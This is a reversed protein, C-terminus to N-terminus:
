DVNNINEVVSMRRLKSLPLSTSIISGVICVALSILIECWPTIWVINASVNNEIFKYIIYSTGLGAFTGTLWGAFGYILGESRIMIGLETGTMGTARLMGYEKQRVIINSSIINVITLMSIVAICALIGYIVTDVQNQLKKMEIEYPNNVLDPSVTYGHKGGAINELQNKVYERDANEDVTIYIGYCKSNEIFESLKDSHMVVMFGESASVHIAFPLKEFFGGVLATIKKDKLKIDVRDGTKLSTYPINKSSINMDYKPLIVIFENKMLETDISGECIYEKMIELEKDGYGLFISLFPKKGGYEEICVDPPFRIYRYRENVKQPEVLVNLIFDMRYRFDDESFGKAWEGRWTSPAFVESVGEISELSEIFGKDPPKVAKDLRERSPSDMYNIYIRFDSSYVDRRDIARLRDTKVVFSYTILLFVSLSLTIVTLIFSKKRRWINRYSLIVPFLLPNKGKLFLSSAPAKLKSEKVKLGAGNTIAGVPSLRTAKIAPIICSILVTAISFVIGGVLREFPIVLNMGSAQFFGLKLLLLWSLGIGALVGLPIAIVCIIVTEQIMMFFLQKPSLGVVRLMGFQRIRDYVSINVINYISIFLTFLVIGLIVFGLRKMLEYNNFQGTRGEASILDINEKPGTVGDVEEEAYLGPFSKLSEVGELIGVQPKFRVLLTHRTDKEILGTNLDYLMLGVSTGRRLAKARTKVTGTITYDVQNMKYNTPFTKINLLDAMWDEIVMEYPRNPFRGKSITMGTLEMGQQSATMLSIKRNEDVRYWSHELLLCVDEVMAHQKILEVTEFSDTEYAVHWAGNQETAQKILVSKYVETAISVTTMLMIAIVVGAFILLSRKPQRTAYKYSLSYYNKM